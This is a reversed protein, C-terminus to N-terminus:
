ETIPVYAASVIADLLTDGQSGSSAYRYFRLWDPYVEAISGNNWLRFGSRDNPREARMPQVIYNHHASALEKLRHEVGNNQAGLGFPTASSDRSWLNDPAAFLVSLNNVDIPRLGKEEMGLRLVEQTLGWDSIESGAYKLVVEHIRKLLDMILLMLFNIIM